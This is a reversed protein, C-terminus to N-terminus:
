PSGMMYPVWVEMAAPARNAWAYYPIFTLQVEKGPKRLAKEFTQYLPEAALPKPTAIGKHRFVLIGGLMEPRFEATFEQGPDPGVPLSVDFISEQGGQDLQELCYVLPGREVAVRGLDERVRPNAVVLRPTMDLALRITDRANWRRHIPFYEGPKPDGQIPEGNVTVRATKTWAPIRLFVSFEAPVGPIVGLTVTDGWPYDTDQSLKLGTGDELHWDLTSNHFLHVYVGDTSTSYLYGPVSALTRELNPPCCTTDYWPKRIKEGTSELPNRYCYLTGSLSMGSNIGNYLAREIVDTFRAEGSVALMRWNWMMNAIAACSEGYAQSNPLEYPEGFAETQARSGVGGTVYMKRDVTDRWLNELTQRYTPGGTELYYDTAGSCAYMTCVAHGDVASRSTFPMGTYYHRVQDSPLGLRVRENGGLLYGAFELYRRDGTTRYLEVMAMELVPHSAVIPRKQPGFTEIVYNAFKIGGDLLRRDGIARYYAIGAQLLHGLCYLEHGELVQTFRQAARDEVYYTNLYGSPEQAVLVEDILNDITARLKPHDGSQLALAVAEMWKYIDSDTAVAGKRAVKKRGSLRRFNDVVGHEELLHLLTPISQEVNTRMRSSWFGEGMKVACIPVSHLKARPSSSTHIIGQSRWPTPQTEAHIAVQFCWLGGALFAIQRTLNTGAWNM